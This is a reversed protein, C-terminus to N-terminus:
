IIAPRHGNDVIQLQLYNNVKALKVQVETAGAYKAINNVAERFVLFLDRRQNMDITKDLVEEDINIVTHVNKSELTQAAYERMRIVMNELKDNEPKVAWVIDSIGQQVAASQETIKQLFSSTKAQDRQLNKLNEKPLLLYLLIATSNNASINQCSLAKYILFLNDIKLILVLKHFYSSISKRQYKLKQNKGQM